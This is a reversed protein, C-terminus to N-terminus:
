EDREGNESAIERAKVGSSRAIRSLPPLVRAYQKFAEAEQVTLQHETVENELPVADNERKTEAEEAASRFITFAKTKLDSDNKM